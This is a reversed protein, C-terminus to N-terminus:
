QRVVGFGFERELETGRATLITFGHREAIDKAVSLLRTKGLGAPADVVAMRGHEASADALFAELAELEADREVLAPEVHGLTACGRLNLTLDLTTGTTTPAGRQWSRATAASPDSRDHADAGRSHSSHVPVIPLNLPRI